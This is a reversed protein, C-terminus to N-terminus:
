IEKERRRNEHFEFGSLLNKDVEDTAFKIGNLNLFIYFVFCFKTEKLIDKVACIKM